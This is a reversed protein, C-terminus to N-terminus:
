FLGRLSWYYRLTRRTLYQRYYLEYMKAKINISGLGYFLKTDVKLVVEYVKPKVLTFCDRIDIGSQTFARVILFTALIV